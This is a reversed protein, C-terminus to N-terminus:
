DPNSAPLLRDPTVFHACSRKVRGLCFNHADMFEVIAIRFLNEYGIGEPVPAEPLCCLLAILLRRM